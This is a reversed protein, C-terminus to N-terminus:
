GRDGGSRIASRVARQLADEAESLRNLRELYDPAAVSVELVADRAHLWEVAEREAIYPAVAILAARGAAIAQKETM